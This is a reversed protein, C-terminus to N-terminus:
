LMMADFVTATLRELPVRTFKTELPNSRKTMGEIHHELWANDLARIIEVHHPELPVRHLRSWAEMEQYSIALPGYGHHQRTEAMSQFMAWFVDGGAPLVGGAGNKLSERLAEVLKTKFVDRRM